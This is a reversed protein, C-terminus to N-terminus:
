FFVLGFYFVMFVLCCWYLQYKWGFDSFSIFLFIAILILAVWQSIKQWIGIKKLNLDRL